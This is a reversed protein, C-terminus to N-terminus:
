ETGLRKGIVGMSSLVMCWVSNLEERRYSSLTMSQAAMVVAKKPKRRTESYVERRLVEKSGLKVRSYSSTCILFLEAQRCMLVELVSGKRCPTVILSAAFLVMRQGTLARLSCRERCGVLDPGRKVKWSLFYRLRASRLLVRRSVVLPCALMDEWENLIPAADVAAAIPQGLYRICLKPLHVLSQKRLYMRIESWVMLEVEVESAVHSIGIVM